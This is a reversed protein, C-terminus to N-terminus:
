RNNIGEIEERMAERGLQFAVVMSLVIPKTFEERDMRAVALLMHAVTFTNLALMEAQIRPTLGEESTWERILMEARILQQATAPNPFM